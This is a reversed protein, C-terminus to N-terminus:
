PHARWGRSSAGDRSVDTIWGGTEHHISVRTVTPHTAMFERAAGEAETATGFKGPMLGTKGTEDAWRGTIRM